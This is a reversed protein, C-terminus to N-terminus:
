TYVQHIKNWLYNYFLLRFSLLLDYSYCRYLLYLYQLASAQHFYNHMGTYIHLQNMCTYIIRDDGTVLVYGFSNAILLPYIYTHTHTHTYTYTYKAYKTSVKTIIYTYFVIFCKYLVAAENTYFICSKILTEDDGQAINAM